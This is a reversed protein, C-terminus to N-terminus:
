LNERWEGPPMGSWRRFSRSFASIASYGLAYAIQSIPLDTNALLQRSVECRLREVEGQFSVGKPALRRNLTRPQMSLMEAIGSLSLIKSQLLPVIARQTQSLIDPAANAIQELRWLAAARLEPDAGPIPAALDSRAYVLASKESDFRVPARFHRAYVAPDVPARRALHVEFPEVGTLDRAIQCVSALAMDKFFPAWRPPGALTVAHCLPFTEDDPLVYFMGGQNNRYPHAALDGFAQELTAANRLVEGLPGFHVLNAKQGVLLGFHPCDTAAACADFLEGARAYSLVGEVDDLEDASLRCSALLEATAVGFDALVDPILALLGLPQFECAPHFLRHAEYPM